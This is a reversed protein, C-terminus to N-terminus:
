SIGDKAEKETVDEGNAYPNAIEEIKEVVNRWGTWKNGILQSICLQQIKMFDLMGKGMFAALGRNDDIAKHLEKALQKASKKPGIQTSM